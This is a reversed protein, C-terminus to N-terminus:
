EGGTPFFGTRDLLYGLLVIALEVPRVWAALQYPALDPENMNGGHAYSLAVAAVAAISWGRPRVAAFAAVAGLYWPNVVASLLLFVGLLFDGPPFCAALSPAHEHPLVAGNKMWRAFVIVWVVAFAALGIAKSIHFGILPALWTVLTGNFEWAGAMEKLAPWDAESGQLWFPAYLAGAVAGCLLWGTKRGRVLLFPVIIFAFIKAALAVGCAIAMVPWRKRVCALMAAVVAAVWLADPHATFSTEVVLLPCWAFWLAHQPATVRLLCWLTLLEAAILFLKLPWLRAPAILYSLAFAAQCVPPYVTPLDANNITSLITQWESDLSRDDYFAEPPKEYPNGTVATMRGDWLYRAWDDEFIPQGFFGIGRFAVGGVWVAALVANRNLKGAAHWALALALWTIATVSFFAALSLEGHRSRWALWLWALLTVLGALAVIRFAHRREFM